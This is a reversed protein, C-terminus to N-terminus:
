DVLTMGMMERRMLTPSWRGGGGGWRDLSYIERDILCRSSTKESVRRRLNYMLTDAGEPDM